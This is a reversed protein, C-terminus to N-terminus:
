NFKIQEPEQRLVGLRDFDRDYSVITWKRHNIQKISAILSDIYKVPLKDYFELALLHDYGDILKLGRLNVIARLAKIVKEKPFQYYSTLTWGVEALILSATMGKIQNKKIAELFRCCAEWSLENLHDKEAKIFVKSYSKIALQDRLLKPITIQGKQTMTTIM